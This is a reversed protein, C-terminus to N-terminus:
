SEVIRDWSKIKSLSDSITFDKTSSDIHHLELAEKCRNYGCIGCSGGFSDIIRQKTRKRWQKVYKSQTAM